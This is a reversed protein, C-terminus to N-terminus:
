QATRDTSLSLLRIRRRWWAGIGLIYLSVGDTDIAVPYGISSDLEIYGQYRSYFSQGQNYYVLKYKHVRDNTGGDLVYFTNGIHTIGTPSPNASNLRFLETYTGNERKYVRDNNTAVMYVIDPSPEYDVSIGGVGTVASPYDYHSFYPRGSLRYHLSDGENNAWWAYTYGDIADMGSVYDYSSSLDTIGIRTGSLTSGSQSYERFHRYRYTYNGAEVLTSYQVYLNGGNEVAINNWGNHSPPSALDISRSLTFEMSESAQASLDREPVVLVFLAATCLAALLLVLIPLLKVTPRRNCGQTNAHM